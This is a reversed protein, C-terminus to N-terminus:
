LVFPVFRKTREMYSPYVDPLLRSMEREEKRALVVLPLVAMLVESYAGPVNLASGILM